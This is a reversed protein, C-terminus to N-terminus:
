VQTVWAQIRQSAGTSKGFVANHPVRGLLAIEGPWLKSMLHSSGSDKFIEVYEDGPDAPSVSEPSLNKVVVVIDGTVDTPINLAVNSTGVDQTFTGVGDGAMDMTASLSGTAIAAGEIAVQLSATMRIEDAM